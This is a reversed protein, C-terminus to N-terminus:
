CATPTVTMLQISGWSPFHSLLWSRRGVVQALQTAAYYGAWQGILGAIFAPRFNMGQARRAGGSIAGARHADTVHRRRLLMRPLTLLNQLRVVLGQSPLASSIQPPYDTLELLDRGSNGRLLATFGSNKIIPVNFGPETPPSRRQRMCRHRNMAERDPFIGQVQDPRM